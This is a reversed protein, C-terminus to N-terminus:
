GDGNDRRAHGRRARNGRTRRGIRGRVQRPLRRDGEGDQVPADVAVARRQRRGAQPPSCNRRNPGSQAPGCRYATCATLPRRRAVHGTRHRVYSETGGARTPVPWRQQLRFSRSRSAPPRRGEGPDAKSSRTSASLGALPCTMPFPWRCGAPEVGAADIGGGLVPRRVAVGDERDIAGPVVDLLSSRAFAESVSGGSRSRFGRARELGVATRRVQSTGGGPVPM